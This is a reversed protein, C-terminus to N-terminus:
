PIQAEVRTILTHVAGASRLAGAITPAKGDEVLAIMNGGRGGGSLKAGLAGSRRAAEVLSDLAPCSVTLEQLLRHNRDMLGGLDHWDGKEIVQRAQRAIEGILDFHREWRVNDVEWLRRVDGVAERTPAPLGTDAIVLTFADIPHLVEIPEGRVFFVPHSFTIVTNDIGSPTGHHLKEVEFSLRSVENDDLPSGLHQALARALAVSVATGSGLGSAIPISSIIRILLNPPTSINFFALVGQVMAALPDDPGLSTLEAQLNIQKAELWIGPRSGAEVEVQAQVEMLPVALAPHGYVVAHEGFLIIKGPASSTTM